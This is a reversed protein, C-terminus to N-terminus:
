RTSPVINRAVSANRALLSSTSDPLEHSWTSTGGSLVVTAYLDKRIDGDRGLGESSALDINFKKWFESVWPRLCQFMLPKNLPASQCASKHLCKSLKQLIGRHARLGRVKRPIGTGLLSEVILWISIRVTSVSPSFCPPSPVPFFTSSPLSSRVGQM